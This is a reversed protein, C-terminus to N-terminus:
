ASNFKPWLSGTRARYEKYLPGHLRELHEEEDRLKFSVLTRHIFLALLTVPSPELLFIGALILCQFAYIPHRMRSYPGKTVLPTKETGDVGIRWADGMSAHAWFTGAFGALVLVLGTIFSVSGEFPFRVSFFPSLAWSLSVVVWGLWLM